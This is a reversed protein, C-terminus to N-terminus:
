SLLRLDRRLVDSDAGALLGEVKAHTEEWVPIASALLARGARTLRVVRSRRDAAVVAVDVLGDRQLPKLAATLTTRDMALLAAISGMGVPEPRNVSNLLSFQGSTLGLPRLVEDFRRALM